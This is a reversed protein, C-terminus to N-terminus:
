KYGKVALNLKQPIKRVTIMHLYHNIAVAEYYRYEYFYKKSGQKNLISIKIEQPLTEM